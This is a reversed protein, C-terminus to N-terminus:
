IIAYSLKWTAPKLENNIYKGEEKESVHQDVPNMSAKTMSKHKTVYVFRVM